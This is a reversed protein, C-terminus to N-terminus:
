PKAQGNLANALEMAVRAGEKDDIRECSRALERHGEPDTPKLQTYVRFTSAARAFEELEAYNRGLELVDEPQYKGLSYQVELHKRRQTLETIRQHQALYTKAEETKGQQHLVEWLHFLILPSRPAKNLAARLFPEAKDPQGLKGYAIGLQIKSPDHDGNLELCKRFYGVAREIDKLDQTEAMVIEGYVYAAELSDPWRVVLDDRALRKANLLDGHQLCYECLGAFSQPTQSEPRALILKEMEAAAKERQGLLEFKQALNLHASPDDPALKSAAELGKLAGAPDGAQYKAASEALSKQYRTGNAGRKARFIQRTVLGALLFTVMPLILWQALGWNFKRLHNSMEKTRNGLRAPIWRFVLAAM